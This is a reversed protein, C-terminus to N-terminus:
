APEASSSAQEPVRTGDTLRRIENLAARILAISDPHDDPEVGCLAEVGDVDPGVVIGPIGLAKLQAQEFESEEGSIWAVFSPRRDLSPLSGLSYVDYGVDALLGGLMGIHAFTKDVRAPELAWTSAGVVAVPGKSPRVHCTPSRGGFRFIDINPSPRASRYAALVERYPAVPDELKVM